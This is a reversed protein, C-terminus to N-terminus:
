TSLVKVSRTPQANKTTPAASDTNVGIAAHATATPDTEITIPITAPFTLPYLNRRLDPALLYEAQIRHPPTDHGKRRRYL